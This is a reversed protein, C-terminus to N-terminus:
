GYSVLRRLNEDLEPDAQPLSRGLIALRVGNRRALALACEAAIGKGGGSVLVVDRSELVGSPQTSSDLLGLVPVRRVGASDYVVETFGAVSTAEAIILEVARSHLPPVSVVCCNIWPAELHLSRVFAAGFTKHQVVLFYRANKNSLVARAGELLSRINSEEEEPALLVAVGEGDVEVLRELLAEGLFCNPPAVLQWRGRGAVQHRRDRLPKERLEVDFCRVWSDVASATRRVGAATRVNLWLDELAAAVDAISVGSYD